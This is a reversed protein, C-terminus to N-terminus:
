SAKMDSLTKIGTSAGAKNAWTNNGNSKQKVKYIKQSFGSLRPQIVTQVDNNDQIVAHSGAHFLNLHEPPKKQKWIWKEPTIKLPTM